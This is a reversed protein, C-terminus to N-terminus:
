QAVSASKDFYSRDVVNDWNISNGKLREKSRMWAEEVKAGSVITDAFGIKFNYLGMIYEALDYSVKNRAATIKVAEAHNSKIFDSAERMAALMRITVDPHSQIFTKNGVIVFNQFYGVDGSSALIHVKDKGSIEVAKTPWPEWAFFAQVDGRDLAAPLEPVPVPTLGLESEPVDMKKAVLAWLYDTTSGQVTGLKKGKLEDLTKISTLAAIKFNNTSTAQSALLRLADSRVFRPMWTATGSAGFDLEGAMVDDAIEPGSPLQTFDASIKNKAFFGMDQAVWWTTYSPDVGVGIRIKDQAAAPGSTALGFLAAVM